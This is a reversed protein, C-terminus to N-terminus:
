DGGELSAYGSRIEQGWVPFGNESALRAAADWDYAIAKLSVRWRGNLKEIIAYRAHPSGNEMKHPFPSGDAYAPLGVSGPNVILRDDPLQVVRPIHTHGCLVLSGEVPGLINRIGESGRVEVGGPRVHELLYETDSRPSGHCALWGDQHHTERWQAAFAMDGESLRQRAFSVSPSLEKGLRDCVMRDGNGRVHIADLGRLIRAVAGPNVPGNFADGLQVLLDVRNREVDELVAALALDNSHIDAIAAIRM